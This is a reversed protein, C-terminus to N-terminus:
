VPLDPLSVGDRGDIGRVVVLIVGGPMRPLAGDCSCAGTGTRHGAGGRGDNGPFDYENFITSTNNQM